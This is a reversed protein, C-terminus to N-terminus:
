MSLLRILFMVMYVIRGFTHPCRAMVGVRLGEGLLFPLFCVFTYMLLTESHQIIIKKGKVQVWGLGSEAQYHGQVCLSALSTM